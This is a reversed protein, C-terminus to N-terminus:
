SPLHSFLRKAFREVSYCFWWLWVDNDSQSPKNRENPAPSPFRVWAVLKSPQLEVMSSCGRMKNNDMVDSRCLNNYVDTDNLAVDIFM